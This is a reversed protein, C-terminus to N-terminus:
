LVPQLSDAFLKHAMLMTIVGDIKGNQFKKQPKRNRMSDEDLYANAFCYANIPNDDIFIRGTRVGVEFSECASTFEMYTQRIGRIVSGAGATSLMNILERSKAPDYGIAITRTPGNLM